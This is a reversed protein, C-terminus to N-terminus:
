ILSHAIDEPLLAANSDRRKWIWDARVLGPSRCKFCIAIVKYNQIMLIILFYALHFLVRWILPFYLQLLLEYFIKLLTFVSHSVFNSQWNTFTLHMSKIASTWDCCWGWTVSVSLFLFFHMDSLLMSSLQSRQTMFVLNALLQQM